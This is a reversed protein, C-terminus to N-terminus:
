FTATALVESSTVCVLGSAALLTNVPQMLVFLVEFVLTAPDVVSSVCPTQYEKSSSSSPLLASLLTLTTTAASPVDLDPAEVRRVVRPAKAAPTAARAKQAYRSLAPEILLEEM